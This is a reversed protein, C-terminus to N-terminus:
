PAAKAVPRASSGAAEFMAKLFRVLQWTESLKPPAPFETHRLLPTIVSQRLWPAPIEAALHRTEISPIIPDDSGHVLFVPVHLAALHGHPSAAILQPRVSDVARSLLAALASPQGTALLVSMVQQASPSLGQALKRAEAPRDRLYLDLARRALGLDESPVFRALHERIMVRAGYPHPAVQVREGNPGRVDEGAYYRCLRLLDDHGGVSVVFAIAAPDHQAAAAMLALGGAFSIGIVGVAPNGTTAAHARALQAIQEITRTGLRYGLLEPLEPTLVDLGASALTRAFAVLHTEEIGRPHVGHLLILGPLHATARAPAYRRARLSIDDIAVPGDHEVIPGLVRKTLPGVAQQGTLKALVALAIASRQLQPAAVLCSALVGSLVCRTALGFRPARESSGIPLSM